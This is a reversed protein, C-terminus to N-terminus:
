CFEHKHVKSPRITHCFNQDTKLLDEYALMESKNKCTSGYICKGLDYNSSRELEKIDSRVKQVLWNVNGEESSIKKPPPPPPFSVSKSLINKFGVINWCGETQLILLQEGFYFILNSLMQKSVQNNQGQYLEHSVSVTM